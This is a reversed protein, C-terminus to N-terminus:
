KWLPNDLSDIPSKNSVEPILIYSDRNLKKLLGFAVMEQIIRYRYKSPIRTMSGIKGRIQMRSIIIEGYEKKLLGYLYLHLIPRKSLM